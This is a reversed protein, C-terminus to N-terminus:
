ASVQSEPREAVVMTEKVNHSRVKITDAVLTSGAPMTLKKAIYVDNNFFGNGRVILVDGTSTEQISV